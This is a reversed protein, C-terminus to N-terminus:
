LIKQKWIWRMSILFNWIFAAVIGLLNSILYHLGGLETLLFLVLLNLLVGAGFGINSKVMRKLLSRTGHGRRDRFTWVDNLAFNSLISCEISILASLLYHIGLLETLTFLLGENVLVGSVGVMVFKLLRQLEGKYRMLSILHKLYKAYEKAGIKSRGLRRPKFTYPVEVVSSHRGKVLIELLIKYGEPRLDVGEVVGRRLAFFGSMPDKVDTLFLKALWTAGRSILRRSLSWGRVEGGGVYRSAIALDAGSKVADVLKPVLEPPHQLDADMVVLCQGAAHSFGDVVASALGRKGERKVLKIPYSQSLEQALEWTGDPSNDDVIVIEYDRDGLSDDIKKVLVELNERENYTPVIISVKM